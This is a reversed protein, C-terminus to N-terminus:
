FIHMSKEGMIPDGLFNFINLYRCICLNIFPMCVRTKTDKTYTSTRFHKNCPNMYTYYTERIKLCELHIQCPILADSFGFVDINQLGIPQCKNCHEKTEVILHTSKVKIRYPNVCSVYRLHFQSRINQQKPVLILSLWKTRYLSITRESTDQHNCFTTIETSIIQIM